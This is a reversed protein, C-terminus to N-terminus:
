GGRGTGRTIHFSDYNNINFDNIINPEIRTETIAIIDFQVKLQLIYNKMKHLNTNLCSANFPIFFQRVYSM